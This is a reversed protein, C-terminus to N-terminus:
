TKVEAMNRFCLCLFQIFKCTSKLLGECQSYLFEWFCTRVSCLMGTFASLTHYLNHAQQETWPFPSCNKRIWWCLSHLFFFWAGAKANMWHIIRLLYSYFHFHLETAPFRKSKIFTNNEAHLWQSVYRKKKNIKEKKKKKREPHDVFVALWNEEWFPTNVSFCQIKRQEAAEASLLM